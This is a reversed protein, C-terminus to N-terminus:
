QTISITGFGGYCTYLGFIDDEYSIWTYGSIIDGRGTSIVWFGPSGWLYYDTGLIDYLWTVGNYDKFHVPMNWWIDDSSKAIGEPFSRPDIPPYDPFLIDSVNKIVGLSLLHLGRFMLYAMSNNWWGNDKLWDISMLWRTYFRVGVPVNYTYGKGRQHFFRGKKFNLFWYKFADSEMYYEGKRRNILPARRINPKGHSSLNSLRNASKTFSQSRINTPVSM